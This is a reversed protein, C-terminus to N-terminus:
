GYDLMGQQRHAQEVSGTRRTSKASVSPALLFGVLAMSNEDCTVSNKKLIMPNKPTKIPNKSNFGPIKSCKQLFEPFIKLGNKPIKTALGVLQENEQGQCRNCMKGRKSLLNCMKGRKAGTECNGVSTM